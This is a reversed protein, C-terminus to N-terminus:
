WLHTISLPVCFDYYSQNQYQLAPLIGTSNTLVEAYQLSTIQVNKNKTPVSPDRFYFIITQGIIQCSQQYCLIKFQFTLEKEKQLCYKAKRSINYLKLFNFISLDLKFVNTEFSLAGKSCYTIGLTLGQLILRSFRMTSLLSSANQFEQPHPLPFGSDDFSAQQNLSLVIQAGILIIVFVTFSQIM